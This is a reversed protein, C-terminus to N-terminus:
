ALTKRNQAKFAAYDTALNVIGDGDADLFWLFGADGDSKGATTRFISYDKNDVDGDGDADGYLRFLHDVYDGGAAGNADGDLAQGSADHIRDSFATLTYRGDALSGATIGAGTFTLTVVTQDGVVQSSAVLNVITGDSHKLQFADDDITVVGSFTLTLHTVMSRQTEGDNVAFDSVTPAPTATGTVSLILDVVNNSRDSEDQGESSNAVIFLHYDGPATGAPLPVDMSVIYGRGDPLPSQSATSINALPTDSAPDYTSDTSLYVGDLWSAEAGDFGVNTVIWTVSLYQGPAASSPADADSIALNVPSETEGAALTIPVAKVNNNENTEAQNHSGDAFFLLYYSGAPM